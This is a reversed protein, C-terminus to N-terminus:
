SPWSPIKEDGTIYVFTVMVVRKSVKQKIGRAHESKKSLLISHLISMGQESMNASSSCAQSRVISLIFDFRFINTLKEAITM